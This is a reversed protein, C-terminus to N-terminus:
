APPEDKDDEAPEPERDDTDDDQDFFDPEEMYDPHLEISEEPHESV